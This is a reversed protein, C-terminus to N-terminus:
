WLLERDALLHQLLDVLSKLKEHVDAQVIQREVTRGRRQRAALSLADPERTLDATPEHAHEVDEVLRRDTQVRAVIMTEQCCEALQPIHAIRNDDDLVIRRYVDGAEHVPADLGGQVRDRLAVLAETEAGPAGPVDPYIPASLGERGDSQANETLNRLGNTSWLAYYDDETEEAARSAEVYLGEAERRGAKEYVRALHYLAAARHKSYAQRAVSELLPVVAERSGVGMSAMAADFLTRGAVTIRGADPKLLGALMRMLSTKGAGSQAFLLVAKRAMVLDSLVDIEVRRGFFFASQATTFPQPGVYPNPGPRDNGSM